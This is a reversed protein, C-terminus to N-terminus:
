FISYIIGIGSTYRNRWSSERYEEYQYGANLRLQFRQSKGIYTVLRLDVGHANLTSPLLGDTAWPEDQAAGTFLSLQVYNYDKWFVRSNLQYSMRPDPEKFHIFALGEVWFRGMYKELGLSGTYLSQDFYYYKLGGSVLFKAPLKQWLRMMARHNPFNENQSYAYNWWSTLGKTIRQYYDLEFQYGRSHSDLYGYNVKGYIASNEAKYGLGSYFVNFNRVYPASFYDNGYGALFQLNGRDEGQSFAILSACLFIITLVIKRM